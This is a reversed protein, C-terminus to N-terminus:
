GANKGHVGALLAAGLAGAHSASDAVRAPKNLVLGFLDVIAPNNSPGGVLVIRRVEFGHPSFSETKERMTLILENVLNIAPNNPQGNGIFSRIDLEFLRYRELDYRVGPYSSHLSAYLREGAKSLSFMAGWPGKEVSLFPDVLMDQRLASQREMVPYFGVWSTGLSLLLDGPVTVGAGRAASPHDFAGLVVACGEPLGTELAAKGTIEGIRTGSPFLRPLQTENLGLWNLYPQHWTRHTQDQLYFTTATSYDMAWAGCLRYFQYTINMGIKAALGYEDTKNKKLWALHALPFSRFWPWGSVRYMDASSMGPPDISVDDMSRTDMWHIVSLLPRNNEDMLLTDGTAGSLVVANITGKGVSKVLTRLVQCLIEYHRLASFVVEGAQPRELDTAQTATVVIKGDETVLVGKIASTGMDIGIAYKELM